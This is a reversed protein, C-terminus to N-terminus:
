RSTRQLTRWGNPFVMKNCDEGCSRRWLKRYGRPKMAKNSSGFSISGESVTEFIFSQNFEIIITSGGMPRLEGNQLPVSDQTKTMLPERGCPWKYTYGLDKCRKGLAIRCSIRSCSCLSSFKFIMCVCKNTSWWEDTGKWLSDDSNDTYYWVRRLESGKQVAHAYVSQSQNVIIARRAKEFYTCANGLSWCSYFTDKSEKAM